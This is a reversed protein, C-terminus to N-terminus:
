RINGERMCIVIWQAYSHSYENMVTWSEFAAGCMVAVADLYIRGTPKLKRLKMKFGKKNIRLM